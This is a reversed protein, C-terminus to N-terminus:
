RQAVGFESVSQLVPVVRIFLTGIPCKRTFIMTTHLDVDSQCPFWSLQTSPAACSPIGALFFKKASVVNSSPTHNLNCPLRFLQWCYEPSIVFYTGVFKSCLFAHM